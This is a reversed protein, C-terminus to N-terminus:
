LLRWMVRLGWGEEGCGLLLFLFTALSLRVTLEFAPLADVKPLLSTLAVDDLVLLVALALLTAAANTLVSSPTHPPSPALLHQPPCPSSRLSLPLICM